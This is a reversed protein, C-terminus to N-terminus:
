PNDPPISYASLLPNVTATYSPANVMPPRASLLDRIRQLLALEEAQFRRQEELTREALQLAHEAYQGM